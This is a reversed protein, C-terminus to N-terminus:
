PARAARRALAARGRRAGAARVGLAPLLGVRARRAGPGRGAALAGARASRPRDRGDRLGGCSEAEAPLERVVAAARARAPQALVVVARARSCWSCGSGRTTTRIRRRADRLVAWCRGARDVGAVALVVRCGANEPPLARARGHARELAAGPERLGGAHARVAFPRDCRDRDHGALLGPRSAGLARVPPRASGRVRGVDRPEPRGAALVSRDSAAPALALAPRARGPRCLRFPVGRIRALGALASRCGDLLRAIRHRAGSALSQLFLARRRVHELHAAARVRPM